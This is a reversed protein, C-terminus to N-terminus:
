DEEINFEAFDGYRRGLWMKWIQFKRQRNGDEDRRYFTTYNISPIIQCLIWRIRVILNSNWFAEWNKNKWTHNAGICKSFDEKTKTM